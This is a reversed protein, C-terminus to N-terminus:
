VDGDSSASVSRPTAVPATDWAEHDDELFSPVVAPGIGVSDTTTAVGRNQTAERVMRRCLQTIESVAKSRNMFAYGVLDVGDRDRDLASGYGMAAVAAVVDVSPASSAAVLLLSAGTRSVSDDASVLGLTALHRLMGVDGARVAVVALPLARQLRISNVTSPPLLHLVFEFFAIDASLVACHLVSYGDRDVATFNSAEAEHTLVHWFVRPSGAAAAAHLTTWGDRRCAPRSLGAAELQSRVYRYVDVSRSRAALFLPQRGDDRAQSARLRSRDFAGAQALPELLVPWGGVAAVAKKVMAISDSRCASHAFTQGIENLAESAEVVDQYQALLLVLLEIDGYEAAFHLATNGAITRLAVAMPAKVNPHSFKAFRLWFEMVHRAGCVAARHLPSLGRSDFVSLAPASSPPAAILSVRDTDPVASTVHKMLEVDHLGLELRLSAPDLLGNDTAVARLVLELCRVSARQDHPRHCMSAYHLVNGGNHDTAGLYGAAALQRFTEPQGGAAAAHIPHVGLATQLTAPIADSEDADAADLSGPAGTATAACSDDNLLRRLRRRRKLEVATVADRVLNTYGDFAACHLPTDLTRRLKRVTAYHAMPVLPPPVAAGDGDDGNACHREACLHFFAAFPALDSAGAYPYRDSLHEFLTVDGDTSSM